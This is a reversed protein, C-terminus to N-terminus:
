RISSSYKGAVSGHGFISPSAHLCKSRINSAESEIFLKNLMWDAGVYRFIPNYILLDNFVRIQKKNILYCCATNTVGKEFYRFEQDTSVELKSIKLEPFSCGGALDVYLPGEEYKDAENFLTLIKVYSDPLFVADDEFVLLYDVDAKLSDQLSRIHKDTVAIEIACSRRWKKVSEFKFTYKMAMKLGFKVADWVFFDGKLRRYREWQRNIKWYLFDRFIAVRLSVPAIDPQYSIEGLNVQLREELSGALDKIRPRIYDLRAKDNNHILNILISKTQM